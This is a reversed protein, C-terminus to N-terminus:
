TTMKGKLWYFNRRNQLKLLLPTLKILQAFTWELRDLSRIFFSYLDFFISFSRIFISFSRIFISFSRRRRRSRSRGLVAWSRLLLNKKKIKWTSGLKKPSPEPLYTYAHWGLEFLNVFNFFSSIALYKECKDVQKQAQACFCRM